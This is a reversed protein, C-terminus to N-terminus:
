TNQKLNYLFGRIMALENFKRFYGFFFFFFFFDSASGKKLVVFWLMESRDQILLCLYPNGRREWYTSIGCDIAAFLLSTRCVAIM